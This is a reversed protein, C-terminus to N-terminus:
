KIFNRKVELLSERLEDIHFTCTVSKGSDDIMRISILEEKEHGTVGSKGAYDTLMGSLPNNWTKIFM